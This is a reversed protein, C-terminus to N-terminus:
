GILIRDVKYKVNWKDFIEKLLDENEVPVLINGTGLFTGKTEALAGQSGYRGKLAYHFQVRQAPTFHKLTYSFLSRSKFGFAMSFCDDNKISVGEALLTKALTNGSIIASSTLVSIHANMGEKDALKGLSDIIDLSRKEDADTLIICLDVDTPKPKGRASSGFIVVDLVKSQKIWQRIKRIASSLEKQM